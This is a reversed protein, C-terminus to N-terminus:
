PWRCWKMFFSHWLFLIKLDFFKKHLRFLGAVHCNSTSIFTVQILHCSCRFTFITWHFRIAHRAIVVLALATVSSHRLGRAQAPNQAESQSQSSALWLRNRTFRQLKCLLNIKWYWEIQKSFTFWNIQDTLCDKCSVRLYTKLIDKIDRMMIVTATKRDKKSSRARMM